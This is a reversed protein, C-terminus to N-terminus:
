QVLLYMPTTGMGGAGGAEGVNGGVGLGGGGESGGGAGDGGGGRLGLGGAYGGGRMQVPLTGGNGKVDLGGVESRAQIGGGRVGGCDATSLAGGLGDGGGGSVGADLSPSRSLPSHPGENGDKGRFHFQLSPTTM